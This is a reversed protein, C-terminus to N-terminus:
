PELTVAILFPAARGMNSIFDLSAIETDPRPNQWRQHYLRIRNTGNTGQWAVKAEHAIGNSGADDWVLVDSGYRIPIQLPPGDVYRVEYHGIEAGPADPARKKGFPEGQVAGELFHLFQGKRGVAIGGVRSPFPSLMNKSTLQIVGRVDFRVPVTALQISGRPIGSLDIAKNRWLWPTGLNSTYHGSLDILNMGSGPDRRIIGNTIRGPIPALDRFVAPPLLQELRLQNNTFLCEWDSGSQEFISGGVSLFLNSNSGHHDICRVIPVNSGIVEMQRLKYERETSAVGAWLQYSETKFEYGYDTPIPDQFPTRNLGRGEPSRGGSRLNEPCLFRNLDSIYEPHLDSLLEPWTHHVKRYEQIADFIRNLNTKCSEFEPSRVPKGPAPQQGPLSGAYIAAAFAALVVRHSWGAVASARGFYRHTKV